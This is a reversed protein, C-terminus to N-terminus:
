FYPLAASSRSTASRSIVAIGVSRLDLTLAFREDACIERWARAMGESWNIDDFVMVSEDAMSPSLANMYDLTASEIHHGDIFAFGIPKLESIAAEITDSFRGLRIGARHALDLDDLTRQSREALVDAGELSLVRGHGNLELASAIYSASIGVCAGMELCAQPELARVIRFLLYAWRPPKSSTTMEGLTRQVFHTTEAEGSDFQHATGAGFDAIKLPRESSLLLSRTMEIRRIRRREEASPRGLAASKVADLVANSATGTAEIRAARLRGRLRRSNRVVTHAADSPTIM